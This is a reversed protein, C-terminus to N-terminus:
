IVKYLRFLWYFPWSIVSVLLSVTKNKSKTYKIASIITLVWLFLWLTYIFMLCITTNDLDNINEFKEKNSNFINYGIYGELYM